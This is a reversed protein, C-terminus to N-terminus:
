LCQSDYEDPFVYFTHAPHMHGVIRVEYTRQGVYVIADVWAVESEMVTKDTIGVYDDPTTEWWVQEIKEPQDELGLELACDHPDNWGGLFAFLRFGELGKEFRHVEHLRM